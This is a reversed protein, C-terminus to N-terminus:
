FCYYSVKIMQMMQQTVTITAQVMLQSFFTARLWVSISVPM